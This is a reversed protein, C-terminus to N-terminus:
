LPFLPKSSFPIRSHGPHEPSCFKRCDASRPEVSSRRDTESGQPITAFRLTHACSHRQFCLKKPDRLTLLVRSPPLNRFLLCLASCSPCCDLVGPVASVACTVELPLPFLPTESSLFWGTKEAKDLPKHCGNQASWIFNQIERARCLM